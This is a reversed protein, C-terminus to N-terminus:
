HLPVPAKTFFKNATRTKGGLSDYDRYGVVIVGDGYLADRARDIADRDAGSADFDIGTIQASLSSNLKKETLSPCPARVCRIGNDHVLTFVGDVWEPASAVWIETVNVVLGRDAPDPEVTGKVLLPTGARLDDEYGKAVSAPMATGTWDITQVKCQTQAPGRGCQITSRNARSVFFGNGCDAPSNLSCARTDPILNLFTFTAASDAKGGEGDASEDSLEDAPQSTCAPVLISTM